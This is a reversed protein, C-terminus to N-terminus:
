CWTSISSFHTHYSFLSETRKQVESIVIIPIIIHVYDHIDTV